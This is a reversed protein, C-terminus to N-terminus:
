VLELAKKLEGFTGGRLENHNPHKCVEQAIKVYTMIDWKIGRAAMYQGVACNGKTDMYEYFEDDPKTTLWQRFDFQTTM